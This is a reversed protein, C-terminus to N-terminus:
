MFVAIAVLIPLGLGCGVDNPMSGSLLSLICSPDGPRRSVICNSSSRTYSSGRRSPWISNLTFALPNFKRSIMIERPCTTPLSVPNSLAPRTVLVPGFEFNLIPSRMHPMALPLMFVYALAICSVTVLTGSFREQTDAAESGTTNMM